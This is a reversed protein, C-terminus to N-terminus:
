TRETGIVSTRVRRSIRGYVIWMAAAILVMFGVAWGQGPLALWHVGMADLSFGLFVADLTFAIALAFAIRQRRLVRKARRLTALRAAEDPEAVHMTGLNGLTLAERRAEEAFAPDQAFFSEVAARTDASAEGSWYAPLLDRVIDRTITM